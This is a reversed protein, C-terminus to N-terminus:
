RTGGLKAAILPRVLEAVSPVSVADLVEEFFGNVVLREAVEPPVGRSELYFRQDEDIPGVATAHACRVDNHNIELNPVSEAWADDSLKIVRNTQTANSGRGEHDVRIMGTYVAHARDDLAGKFLLESTTDRAEHTQFTRLDHMQDDDGLYLASLRGTAGRGVLRCDFRNRAYAGGLAVHALRVTAEQAVTASLAGLQNTAGGLANVTTVGVRAAPAVAIEVRPVVTAEVDTSTTWEVVDFQSNEGAVIVLRNLVLAQDADVVGIVQFPLDVVVNRPVSLLLPDVGFAVNLETFADVVAVHESSGVTAAVESGGLEDASESLLGFRVGLEAIEPALEASVLHGNHHVLRGAYKGLGDSLTLAGDPVVESTAPVTFRDLEIDGVRSYRWEELSPDPLPTVAFREAAAVRQATLWAPGPLSSARTPTFADATM